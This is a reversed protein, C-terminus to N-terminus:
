KKKDLVYINRDLVICENILEKRRKELEKVKLEPITYFIDSSKIRQVYLDAAFTAAALTALQKGKKMKTFGVVMM